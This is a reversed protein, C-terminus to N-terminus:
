IVAASIDIEDPLVTIEVEYLGGGSHEEKVNLGDDTSVDFVYTKSGSVGALEVTNSEGTSLRLEDSYVSEDGTSVDVGITRSDDGSRNEIQVAVSRGSDDDSGGRDSLCGAMSALFGASIVFRRRHM